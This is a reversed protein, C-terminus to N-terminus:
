LQYIVFTLNRLDLSLIPFDVLDHAYIAKWTKSRGYFRVSPNESVRKEVPNEVSACALQMTRALNDDGDDNIKIPPKYKNLLSAVIRM